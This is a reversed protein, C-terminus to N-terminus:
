FGFFYFIVRKRSVAQILKYTDKCHLKYGVLPKNFGGVFSYGLFNSREVMFAVRKV